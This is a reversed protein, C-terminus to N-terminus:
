KHNNIRVQLRDILGQLYHVQARHHHTRANNQATVLRSMQGQLDKMSGPRQALAVGVTSLLCTFVASMTVFRNVSKKM